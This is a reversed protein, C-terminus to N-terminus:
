NLVVLYISINVLILHTRQFDSILDTPTAVGFLAQSLRNYIPDEARENYCRILAFFNETPFDLGLVRDIEDVSIFIQELALKLLLIGEIFQSLRQLLSIYEKEQM